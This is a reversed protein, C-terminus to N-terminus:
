APYSGSGGRMSRRIFCSNTYAATCHFDLPYLSPVVHQRYVPHELPPVCGLTSTATRIGLLDRSYRLFLTDVTRLETWHITLPFQSIGFNRGKGEIM